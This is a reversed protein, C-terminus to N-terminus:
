GSNKGVTDEHSNRRDIHAVSLDSYVEDNGDNKVVRKNEPPRIKSQSNKQVV